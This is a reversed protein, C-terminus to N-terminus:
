GSEPTSLPKNWRESIFVNKAVLWDNGKLKDPVPKVIFRRAPTAIKVKTATSSGETPTRGSHQDTTLHLRRGPLPFVIFYFELGAYQKGNVNFMGPTTQDFPLTFANSIQINDFELPQTYWTATLVTITVKFPQQVYVTSRDLAIRAFCHAQAITRQTILILLITTLQKM